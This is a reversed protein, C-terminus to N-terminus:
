WFCYNKLFLLYLYTDCYYRFISSVLKSYVITIKELPKLLIHLKSWVIGLRLSLLNKLYLSLQLLLLNLTAM